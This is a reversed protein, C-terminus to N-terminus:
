EEETQTESSEANDVSEEESVTTENQEYMELSGKNLMEVLDSLEESANCAQIYRNNVDTYLQRVDSRSRIEELYTNWEENVPNMDIYMTGDEKERVIYRNLSPATQDVNLFKIDYSIYTVWSSPDLGNMVYCVINQYDTIIENLMDLHEQTVPNPSDVLQNLKEADGEEEAQFYSQMLNLIKQNSDLEASDQMETNEEDVTLVQMSENEQNLGSDSQTTQTQQNSNGKQEDKKDTIVIVAVILAAAIMVIIIYPLFQLLPSRKKKKLPRRKQEM